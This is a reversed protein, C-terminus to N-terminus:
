PRATELATTKKGTDNGSDNDSMIVQHTLMAIQDRLIQLANHLFTRRLSRVDKWEANDQEDTQREESEYTRATGYINLTQM